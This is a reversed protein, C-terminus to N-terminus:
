RTAATASSAFQDPGPFGGGQVHDRVVLFAVVTVVATVGALLLGIRELGHSSPMSPSGHKTQSVVDISDGPEAAPRMRKPFFPERANALALRYAITM